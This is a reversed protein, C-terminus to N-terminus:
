DNEPIYIEYKSDNAKLIKRLSLKYDKIMNKYCNKIYKLSSFFQRKKYDKKLKQYISQLISTNKFIIPIKLLEKHHKINSNIFIKLLEDGEIIVREKNESILWKLFKLLEKVIINKNAIDIEGSKDIEVFYRYMLPYCEKLWSVNFNKRFIDFTVYECNYYTLLNTALTSKGSGSLGIIFLANSTGNEWNDFNFCIDNNTFIYNLNIDSQNFQGYKKYYVM